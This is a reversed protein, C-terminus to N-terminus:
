NLQRLKQLTNFAQYKINININIQPSSNAHTMDLHGVHTFYKSHSEGQKRHSILYNHNKHTRMYIAKQKILIPGEPKGVNM